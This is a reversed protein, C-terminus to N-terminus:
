RLPVIISQPNGEKAVSWLSCAALKEESAWFPQLEIAVAFLFGGTQLGAVASPLSMQLADSESANLLRSLPSKDNGPQNAEKRLVDL